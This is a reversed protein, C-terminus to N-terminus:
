PAIKEYQLVKVISGAMCISMADPVTEVKVKYWQGVQEYWDDPMGEMPLFKAGNADALAFKCGDLGRLDIVQVRIMGADARSIPVSVENSNLNKKPSCALLMLISFVIVLLNKQAM